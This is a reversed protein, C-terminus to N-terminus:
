AGERLILGADLRSVRWASLAASLSGALVALLFSGAALAAVAGFSPMLYPLALSTSIAGSFPFVILAAIGIGVAAGLVGMLAAETLLLRAVMARSAGIVRLVSFEKAREHSIMAFAILLIVVALM